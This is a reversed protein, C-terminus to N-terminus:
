LEVPSREDPRQIAYAGAGRRDGSGGAGDPQRRKLSGPRLPTDERGDGNIRRGDQEAGPRAGGGGTAPEVYRRGGRLLPDVVPRGAEGRESRDGSPRRGGCRVAGGHDGREVTVSDGGGGDHGGSRQREPHPRDARGREGDRREALGRQTDALGLADGGCARRRRHGLYHHLDADRRTGRRRQSQGGAGLDRPEDGNGARGSDEDAPDRGGSGPETAPQNRRRDSIGAGGGVSRM